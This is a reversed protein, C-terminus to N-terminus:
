GQKYHLGAVQQIDEHQQICCAVGVVDLKKKRYGPFLLSNKANNLPLHRLLESAEISHQL